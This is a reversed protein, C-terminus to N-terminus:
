NMKGVTKVSTRGSIVERLDEEAEELEGMLGELEHEHIKKAHTAREREEQQKWLKNQAKELEREAKEEGIKALEIATKEKAIDYRKDLIAEEIEKITRM